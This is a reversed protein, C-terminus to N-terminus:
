RKQCAEALACVVYDQEAESMSSFLPIQISRDQAAESEMLRACAGEACDCESAGPRCLWSQRPYGPERHACMIGRRTAIGVAALQEMVERQDCWAPLGLCYSQWNSRAWAPEEPLRLGAIPALREGYRRALARRREVIAVLRSLQVRGIAAQIDTLRMNFGPEAYREIVVGSRHRVEADVDIGHIRLRRMRAALGADGTTIMGGDGTTIIKRPHFSFCAAVGRPRGIKEWEGDWFIESGAACAADEILPLGHQSAIEVLAALDCPMGIQHVALIARTRPGIAAATRAPDMNFSGPAIDVFIPTAGSRRVANAAAIFSHSVTVVESGAAVGIAHLVLELAATGSSVAIAEPAGVVDAFEQEFARVEPGQTLWGSLLVRRAAAAEEEGLDPRALPVRPEALPKQQKGIALSTM